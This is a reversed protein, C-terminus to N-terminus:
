SFVNLPRSPLQVKQSNKLMIRKSIPVRVKSAFNTPKLSPEMANGFRMKTTQFDLRKLHVINTARVLTNYFIQVRQYLTQFGSTVKTKHCFISNLRAYVEDLLSQM